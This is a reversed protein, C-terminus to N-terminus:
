FCHQKTILEGEIWANDLTKLIVTTKMFCVLKLRVEWMCSFEKCGKKYEDHNTKIHEVLADKDLFEKNCSRWRCIIAGFESADESPEEQVIEM